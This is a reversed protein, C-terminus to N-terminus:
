MMCVADDRFVSFGGGSEHAADVAGTDVPVNGGTKRVAEDVPKACFDPNGGSLQMGPTGHAKLFQTGIFVDNVAAALDASLCLLM